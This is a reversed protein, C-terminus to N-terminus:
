FSLGLSLKANPIIDRALAGPTQQVVFTAGGDLQLGMGFYRSFWHVWEASVLTDIGQATGGCCDISLMQMARYGVSPGVGFEDGWYSTSGDAQTKTNIHIYHLFRSTVHASLSSIFVITGACADISLYINPNAQLCLGVTDPIGSLFSLKLDVIRQFPLQKFWGSIVGKDSASIVGDRVMKDLKASAAAYVEDSHERMVPSDNITEITVSPTTAPLVPKEVAFINDDASASLTLALATLFATLVHHNKIMVRHM